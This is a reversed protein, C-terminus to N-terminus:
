ALVRRLTPYTAATTWGYVLHSMLHQMNTTAPYAKLPWPSLGAVPLGLQDAAVWVAAGYKGGEAFASNPSVERLAGYLAGAATSYATRSM